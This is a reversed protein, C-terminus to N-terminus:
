INLHLGPLSLLNYVSYCCFNELASGKCLLYGLGTEKRITTGCKIRLINQFNKRSSDENASKYIDSLFTSSITKTPAVSSEQHSFNHEKTM